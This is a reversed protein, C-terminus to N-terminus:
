MEVYTASLFPSREGGLKKIALFYPTFENQQGSNHSERRKRCNLSIIIRNQEKERKHINKIKESRTIFQYYIGMAWSFANGSREVPKGDGQSKSICIRDGELPSGLYLIFM